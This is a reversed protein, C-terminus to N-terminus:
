EKFYHVGNKNLQLMPKVLSPCQTQLVVPNCVTGNKYNQLCNELFFNEINCSIYLNQKFKRTQSWFKLNQVWVTIEAFVANFLEMSVHTFIVQIITKFLHMFQNNQNEGYEVTDTSRENEASFLTFVYKLFVWPWFLSELKDSIDISFDRNFLIIDM